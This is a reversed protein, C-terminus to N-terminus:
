ALIKKFKGNIYEFMEKSVLHDGSENIETIINQLKEKNKSDDKGTIILLDRSPIGIIIEGKVDFNDKDWINLLILSAEYNGGAVLMFYGDEGHCEISIMNELNEVAKLKLNEYSIGLAKFDDQTIYNISHEKDEAFFLYLESNYKEYVHNDDFESNLEKLQRVFRHDKIVPVIRNTNIPEKPLYLSKAGNLYRNMIEKIDKPDNLYESYCNDLFHTIEKSDNIETKIELENISVIQLGSISETLQDAFKKAFETETLKKKKFFM